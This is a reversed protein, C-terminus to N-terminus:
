KFIKKLIQKGVRKPSSYFKDNYGEIIEKIQIQTFNDPVYTPIGNKGLVFNKWSDCEVKGEDLALNYAKTNPFLILPSIMIDDPDLEDIFNFTDDISGETEGFVGVLAFIRSEVGYKKCLGFATSFFEDSIDKGLMKRMDYSGAELGFSLHVLGSDVMVRLLEEDVLDARTSASWVFGLRKLVGCVGLVHERDATFADDVFDIRNVGSNKLECLEKEVSEIDRLRLGSCAMGCYICSFPCGRSTSFSTFLYKEVEFLNRAPVKLSRLDSVTGCDFRAPFEIDGSVIGELIDCLRNEAEGAIVVDAGFVDAGGFDDTIHAGGVLIVPNGSTVGRGRIGRITEYALNACPSSVSFGIFDPEFSLIKDVLGDSSFDGLRCDLVVTEFGESLTKAGLYGIGLPYSSVLKGNFFPIDENKLYVFVFKRPISSTVGRM